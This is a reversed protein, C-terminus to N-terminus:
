VAPFVKFLNLPPIISDIGWMKACVFPLRFMDYAITAMLGAAAGIMVGRGLRRGAWVVDALSIAALAVLAPLFVFLTFMRMPCLGYFEALLCAISSAALVFVVARGAPSWFNRPQWNSSTM